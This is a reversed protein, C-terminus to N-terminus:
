EGPHNMYWDITREIGEDFGVSPNFGIMEKALSVDTILREVDGARCNKYDIHGRYEMLRAIHHILDYISIEQGSGINITRGRAQENKYIDICAKVTDTVYIYDRTQQGNGTIFPKQNDMIRKITLPIVGAYLGENQRPGYNNFPRIIAYDTGFTKRYSAVILDGAAKSAAYPTHAGLPHQEDMPSYQATGYVESSSFHILTKFYGLRQLECLTVVIGVNEDISKKPNVLSAPLSIVELNFVVEIDYTEALSKMLSFDAASGKVLRFPQNKKADLLNREKGLSMDDVAIVFKADELLLQDVLHSGIFGAGGTVLVAKGKLNM